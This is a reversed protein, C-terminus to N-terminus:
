RFAFDVRDEFGLFVGKVWSDLRSNCRARRDVRVLDVLVKDLIDRHGVMVMLLKEHPCPEVTAHFVISDAFLLGKLGTELDLWICARIDNDSVSVREPGHPIDLKLEM